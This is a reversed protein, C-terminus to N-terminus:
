PFRALSAALALASAELRASSRDGDQDGGRTRVMMVVVSEGEKAARTEQARVTYDEEFVLRWRKM